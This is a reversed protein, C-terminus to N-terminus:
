SVQWIGRARVASGLYLHLKYKTFSAMINLNRVANLMDLCTEEKRHQVRTTFNVNFRSQVPFEKDAIHIAWATCTYYLSPRIGTCSGHRKHSDSCTLLLGRLRRGRVHGTRLPTYSSSGVLDFGWRDRM